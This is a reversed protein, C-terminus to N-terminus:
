KEVEFTKPGSSYGERPPIVELGWITNENYKPPIGSPHTVKIRYMGPRVGEMSEGEISPLAFGTPRTEGRAVDLVGELFPEPVLEVTAGALPQRNRNFQMGAMQIGTQTQEYYAIRDRIEDRTLKGDNNADASGGEAEAAAKLGPAAALEEEDLIGDNNKDNLQMAADAMGEPDWDPPAVGAPGGWCGPLIAAVAVILLFWYRMEAGEARRADDRSDAMNVTFFFLFSFLGYWGLPFLIFSDQPSKL